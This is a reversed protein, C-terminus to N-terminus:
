QGLHFKFGVNVDQVMAIGFENDKIDGSKSTRFYMIGLGFELSVKKSPFFAFGPIIRAEVSQKKQEAGGFPEFKVSGIPIQLEGFFKFREAIPLYYRMTPGALFGTTKSLENNPNYSTNHFQVFFGLALDDMIFYSAGPSFDFLKAKTKYTENPDDITQSGFEFGAGVLWKGKETQASATFATAVFVFAFLLLKKMM